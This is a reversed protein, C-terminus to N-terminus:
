PELRSRKFCRSELANANMKIVSLQYELMSMEVEYQDITTRQKLRKGRLNKLSQELGSEKLETEAENLKADVLSSDFKLTLKVFEQRM